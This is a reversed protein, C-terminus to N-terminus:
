IEEDLKTIEEQIALRKEDDEAMNMNEYKGDRKQYLVNNDDWLKNVKNQEVDM